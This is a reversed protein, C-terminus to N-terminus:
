GAIEFMPYGVTLSEAGDAALGDSFQLGAIFPPVAKQLTQRGMGEEDSGRPRSNKFGGPQAQM